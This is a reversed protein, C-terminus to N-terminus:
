SIHREENWLLIVEKAHNVIKHWEPDELIEKDTEKGKYTDLANRFEVLKGRLNDSLRLKQWNDDSLFDDLCFSDFLMSLDEEFSSFFDLDKGLWLKEQTSLDSYDKLSNYINEEWTNM